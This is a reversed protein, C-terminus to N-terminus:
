DTACGRSSFRAAARGAGAAAAASPPSAWEPMRFWALLFLPVVLAARVLYPIDLRIQGLLGGGITGVLMAAGFFMEGPSCGSSRSRTAPPRSPTSWGPTWPARISRTDLGLFVSVWLVGLIGLRALRIAVYLLTTVFLTVLCLLLSMRRGVTDAVVGTPVEFV